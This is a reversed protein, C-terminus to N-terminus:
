SGAPPPESKRLPQGYVNILPTQSTTALYPTPSQGLSTVVLMQVTTRRPSVASSSSATPKKTPPRNKTELDEIDSTSPQLKSQPQLKSKSASRVPHLPSLAANIPSTVLTKSAAPPPASATGSLPKSQLLYPIYHLKRRTSHGKGSHRGSSFDPIASDVTRSLSRRRQVATGTYFTPPSPYTRGGHMGLMAARCQIRGGRSGLMAAAGGLESEEALPGEALD